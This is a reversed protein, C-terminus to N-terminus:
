AYITWMEMTQGEVPLVEFIKWREPRLEMVLASM